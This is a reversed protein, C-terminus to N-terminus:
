GERSRYQPGIPLLRGRLEGRVHQEIVRQAYTEVTLGPTCGPGYGLFSRYGTESLFPRDLDVAHANFSAFGCVGFLGRMEIRVRMGSAETIFDGVQGWLPVKGPRAATRRQLVCGPAKEDALYGREGGNLKLALLCAEAQLAKAGKEDGALLAAHHRKLLDRYYAIGERLTGPLHATQQEFRRARNTAEADALLGSLGFQRGPDHAIIRRM